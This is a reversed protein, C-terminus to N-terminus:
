GKRSAEERNCAPSSSELEVKDQNLLSAKLNATNSMIIFRSDCLRERKLILTELGDQSPGPDLYFQIMGA